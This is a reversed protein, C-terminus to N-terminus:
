VFIQPTSAHLLERYIAYIGRVLGLNCTRMHPYNKTAGVLPSPAFLQDNHLAWNKKIELCTLGQIPTM